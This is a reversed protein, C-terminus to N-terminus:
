DALAIVAMTALALVVGAVTLALMVRESVPAWEGRALAREVHIRRRHGYAIFGLGVLGYGHNSYKFRSNPKLTPATALDARLQHALEVIDPRKKLLPLVAVKYPALEPHLGLM